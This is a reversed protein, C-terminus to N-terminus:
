LRVARVAGRFYESLRSLLRECVGYVLQNDGVPLTAAHPRELIRLARSLERKWERLLWGDLVEFCAVAVALEDDPFRELQEILELASARAASSEPSRQSADIRLRLGAEFGPTLQASALRGLVDGILVDLYERQFRVHTELGRQLEYRSRAASFTPTVSGDQAELQFAHDVRLANQMEVLLQLTADFQRLGAHHAAHDPQAACAPKRLAGVRCRALLGAVHRRDRHVRHFGHTADRGAYLQLIREGGPHAPMFESVDYVVDDVILWYGHADNNHQAVQSRDYEPLQM